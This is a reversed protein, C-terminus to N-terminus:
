SSVTFRGIAGNVTADIVHDENIHFLYCDKGQQKYMKERIDAVAPGVVEGRYEIVMADKKLRKRAFLGWGHIGSQM